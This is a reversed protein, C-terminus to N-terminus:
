MKNQPTHMTRDLTYGDKGLWINGMCDNVHMQIKKNSSIWPITIMSVRAEKESLENRHGDM